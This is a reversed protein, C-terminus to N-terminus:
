QALSPNAAAADVMSQAESLGPTAERLGKAIIELKSYNDGDVSEGSGGLEEFNKESAKSILDVGKNLMALIKDGGEVSAVNKLIKGLGEVGDEGTLVEMSDAVVDFSKQIRADNQNKLEKVTEELESSDTASKEIQAKLDLIEQDKAEVSKQLDEVKETDLVKTEPADVKSEDGMSDDEKTITPNDDVAGPAGDNTVLASLAETFEKQLDENPIASKVVSESITQAESESMYGVMRLLTALPMNVMTPDAKEEETAGDLMEELREQMAPLSDASIVLDVFDFNKEIVEKEEFNKQVLFDTKGNAAVKVLAVHNGEGSFDFDTLRQRKTQDHKPM